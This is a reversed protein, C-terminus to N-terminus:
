GAAELANKVLKILKKSENEWNYFRAAEIANQKSAMLASKDDLWKDLAAIEDKGPNQALKFGPKFKDFAENQGATESAIVPLGAQLYQFFKNTITYNRSLPSQLELALGIDFDAIKNPLEKESVLEHFFLPYKAPMMAQLDNRYSYFISGLLHLELETETHHLLKIFEELGRGPGITQSFWFLKVPSSITRDVLLDPRVPFVNCIMNPEKSSYASALQHALAGSTTTCYAGRTLADYESKKLLKVPRRVQAIPLLDKSYWDEIDFAVKFGQNILKTGVCTPLEQHMIYLDASHSICKKLLAAANFGLSRASEIHLRLQLEIAIKRVLRAVFSKIGPLRLDSYFEYRITTDKLLELDEQFLPESYIATLVTVHYGEKSLTVAEKLVRPNRCIHSQSVIVIRKGPPAKM